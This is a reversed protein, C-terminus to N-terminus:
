IDSSGGDILLGVPLSHVFRGIVLDNFVFTRSGDGHEFSRATDLQFLQNIGFHYGLYGNPLYVSAASVEAVDDVKDIVAGFSLDGYM